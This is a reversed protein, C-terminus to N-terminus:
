RGKGSVRGLYKDAMECALDFTRAFSHEPCSFTVVWLIATPILKDEEIRFEDLTNVSFDFTEYDIYGKYKEYFASWEDGRMGM